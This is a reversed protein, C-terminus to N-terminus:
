TLRRAGAYHEQYYGSTIDSIVVGTSPNEAHIIQGNGIYLGVHSLGPEYTDAFFILDGPQWEGWAVSTGFDTQGPVGGGIDYGLTNLVVWRTFGSCDFGTSPEKGAWVYPYGLYQMAFDAMGQGTPSPSSPVAPSETSPQEVPGSTSGQSLYQQSIWGTGYDTSAQAFGNAVAGTLSVNSSAPLELIITASTSPETRLNVSDNTHWAGTAGSWDVSEEVPTEAPAETVPASDGQGGLYQGYIWGSQGNWIASIFGDMTQGTLSVEVGAPITGMSSSSTSPGTRFEVSDNTWATGTIDPYQSGGAALWDQVIYGTNGGVSVQYWLSGDAATIPGDIVSVSTGESYEGLITGSTSPEDRLRILDGSTYAIVASGGVTLNTDAYTILPTMAPLLLLGIAPIVPRLRRILSHHAPAEYSAEGRKRITTSM